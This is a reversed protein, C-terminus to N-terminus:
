LSNIIIDTILEMLLVMDFWRFIAMIRIMLRKVTGEDLTYNTFTGCQM